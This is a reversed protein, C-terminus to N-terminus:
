ATAEQAGEPGRCGSDARANLLKATHAADSASLGVQRTMALEAADGSWIDVVTFGRSDPRIVFREAM